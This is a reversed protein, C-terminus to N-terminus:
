LEKIMIINTYNKKILLAQILIKKMSNRKLSFDKTM